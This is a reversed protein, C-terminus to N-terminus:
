APLAGISAAIKPLPNNGLAPRSVTVGPLPPLGTAILTPPKVGYGGAGNERDFTGLLAGCDRVPRGSSCLATYTREFDKKLWKDFAAAPLECCREWGGLMTVTLNIAPDDFRVFAYGGHRVVAQEFADWALVARASLPMDGAWERLEAVTPMFRSRRIAATAARRVDALELDNLGMWYGAYLAEDAERGFTACVAAITEAFQPRETAQLTIRERRLRAM